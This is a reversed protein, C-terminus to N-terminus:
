KVIKFTKIITSIESMRAIITDNAADQAKSYGFVYQSNEGLYAPTPGETSKIQEWKNKTHISINFLSNQISFGFDISDSTGLSGWNLTRNKTIYGEWTQPFNLSFGYKSNTYTKWSATENKPAEASTENGPRSKSLNKNMQLETSISKEQKLYLEAEKFEENKKKASYYYILFLVFFVITLIIVIISFNIKKKNEKENKLELLKSERKGKKILILMISILLSFLFVLFTLLPEKNFFNKSVFLHMLLCLLSFVIIKIFHEKAINKNLYNFITKTLIAFLPITLIILYLVSSSGIFIKSLNPFLLVFLNSTFIILLIMETASCLQRKNQYKRLKSIHTTTEIILLFISIPLIFFVFLMLNFFYDPFCFMTCNDNYGPPQKFEILYWIINIATAIILFNLWNKTFKPKEIIKEKLTLKDNQELKSFNIENAKENEQIIENPSEEINNNQM